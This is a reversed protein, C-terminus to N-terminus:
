RLNSIPLSKFIGFKRNWVSVVRLKVFREARPQSVKRRRARHYLWVRSVSPAHSFFFFLLFACRTVGSWVSRREDCGELTVDDRRPRRRRRTFVSLRYALSFLGGFTSQEPRRPGSSVDWEVSRRFAVVYYRTRRRRPAFVRYCRACPSCATFFPRSVTERTTPLCVGATNSSSFLM